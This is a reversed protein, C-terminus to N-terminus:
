NATMVPAQTEAVILLVRSVMQVPADGITKSATYNDPIDNNKTRIFHDFDQVNEM